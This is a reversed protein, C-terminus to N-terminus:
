TRVEQKSEVIAAPSPRFSLEFIAGKPQANAARITGGFAEMTAHCIALGLGTGEGPSKTTYFPDFVRGLLHEPIGPGDDQFSLLVRRNDGEGESSSTIRIRGAGECADSANVLLNVLVQVLHHEDAEVSPADALDVLLRMSRWRRQPTVLRTATEVAHDIRVATLRLERPRAFDLLDRLIRDIRAVERQMREVFPPSLGDRGGASLDLYGQLAALPNGIEHAVGAALRGVTAFRESRALGARTEGLERNTRELEEIYARTRRREESLNGALSRVQSGLRGLEDGATAALEPLEVDMREVGALAEEVRRVRRVVAREFFVVGLGVVVVAHMLLLVFLRFVDEGGLRRSPLMPVSAEECREEAADSCAGVAVVADRPLRRDASHVLALIALLLVGFPIAVAASLNAAVRLRLGWHSKM